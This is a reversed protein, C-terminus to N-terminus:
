TAPPAPRSRVMSLLRSPNSARCITGRTRRSTDSRSRDVLSNPRVM